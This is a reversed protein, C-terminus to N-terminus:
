LQQLITDDNLFFAPFTTSVVLCYYNYNYWINKFWHSLLSCDFVHLHASFLSFFLLVHKDFPSCAM